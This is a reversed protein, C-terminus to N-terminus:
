YSFRDPALITTQQVGGMGIFFCDALARQFAQGLTFFGQNFDSGWSGRAAM